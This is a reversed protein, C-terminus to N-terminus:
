HKSQLVFALFELHLDLCSLALYKSNLARMTLVYRIPPSLFRGLSCPLIFLVLQIEHPLNLTQLNLKLLLHPLVPHVGELYSLVLLTLYDVPCSM